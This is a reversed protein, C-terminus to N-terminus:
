VVHVPMCVTNAMDSFGDSSEMSFLGKSMIGISNIHFGDTKSAVGVADPDRHHMASAAMNTACDPKISSLIEATELRRKDIVLPVPSTAHPVERETYSLPYQPAHPHM